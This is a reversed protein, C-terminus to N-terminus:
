SGTQWFQSCRFRAHIDRTRRSVAAYTSVAETVRLASGHCSPHDRGACARRERRLWLGGCRRELELRGRGRGQVAELEDVARRCVLRGPEDLFHALVGGAPREAEVDLRRRQRRFGLPQLRQQKRWAARLPSSLAALFRWPAAAGLELGQAASFFSKPHLDFVCARGREVRVARPNAQHLEVAASAADRDDIDEAGAVSRAAAEQVADIDDGVVGDELQAEELGGADLEAFHVARQLRRAQRDAAVARAEGGGGLRM